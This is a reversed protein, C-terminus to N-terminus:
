NNVNNNTNKLRKLNIFLVIIIMIQVCLIIRYILTINIAKAKLNNIYDPGKVLESSLEKLIITNSMKSLRYNHLSQTLYYTDGDQKLSWTENILYRDSNIIFAITIIILAIIAIRLILKKDM